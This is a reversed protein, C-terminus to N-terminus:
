RKKPKMFKKKKKPEIEEWQPKGFLRWDYGREIAYLVFEILNIKYEGEILSLKCYKYKVFMRRMQSMPENFLIIGKVGFDDIYKINNSYRFLLNQYLESM